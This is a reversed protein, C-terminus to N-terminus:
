KETRGNWWDLQYISPILDPQKRLLYYISSFDYKLRKDKYLQTEFVFLNSIFERTDKPLKFLAESLIENFLFNKCDMMMLSDIYDKITIKTGKILCYITLPSKLLTKKWLESVLCAQNLDYKVSELGYMRYGIEPNIKHPLINAAILDVALESNSLLIKQTSNTMKELPTGAEIRFNTWDVCGGVWVIEAMLAATSVYNEYTEDPLGFMFSSQTFIKKKHLERIKPVVEKLPLRKGLVKQMSEAGSEIGLFMFCCGSGSLLHLLDDNIHDIRGYCGWKFSFGMLKRQDIIQNLLFRNSTLNETELMVFRPKEPDLNNYANEALEIIEHSKLYTPFSGEGVNAACFTCKEPCGRGVHIGAISRDHSYWSIGSNKYQNIPKQNNQDAPKLHSTNFAAGFVVGSVSKRSLLLGLADALFTIDRQKFLIDISSDETIIREIRQEIRPAFAGIIVDPFQHKILQCIMLAWPGATTRFTILVIQPKYKLIRERVDSLYFEPYRINGRGVELQLDLLESSYGQGNLMADLQSLEYPGRRPKGAYGAPNILLINSM